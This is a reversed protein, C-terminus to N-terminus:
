RSELYADFTGTVGSCDLIVADIMADFPATSPSSLSISYPAGTADLLAEIYDSPLGRPRVYVFVSGSAGSAPKLTLQHHTQQNIHKNKLAYATGSSSSLDKATVTGFLNGM